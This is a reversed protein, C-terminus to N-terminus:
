MFLSGIAIIVLLILLIIFSTFLVCLLLGLLMEMNDGGVIINVYYIRQHM